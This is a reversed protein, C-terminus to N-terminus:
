EGKPKRGRKKHKPAEDPLPDKVAKEEIKDVKGIEDLKVSPKLSDKIPKDQWDPGLELKQELTFMKGGKEPHYMWYMDVQKPKEFIKARCKECFM